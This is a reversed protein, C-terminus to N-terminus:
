PEQSAFYIKAILEIVYLIIGIVILIIGADKMGADHTVFEMGYGSAYLFLGAVVLLAPFGYVIVKIVLDLDINQAM